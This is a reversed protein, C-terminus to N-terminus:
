VEGPKEDLVEYGVCCDERAFGLTSSTILDVATYNELLPVHSQRSLERRLTEEIEKGTADRVHLVRRKSHGGEKGLDLERHGSVEREDFQVWIGNVRPNSEPRGHCDHSRDGRRLTRRRGRTHRM